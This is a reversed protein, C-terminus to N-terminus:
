LWSEIIVPDDEPSRPLCVLGMSALTARLGDLDECTIISRAPGQMTHLRAVYLGPYDSPSAYVTWIKFVYTM